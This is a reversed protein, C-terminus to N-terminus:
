DKASNDRKLISLMDIPLRKLHGSKMPSTGGEELRLISQLSSLLQDGNPLGSRGELGKMHTISSMENLLLIKIADLRHM